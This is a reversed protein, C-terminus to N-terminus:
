RPNRGDHEPPSGPHCIAYCILALVGFFVMASLRGQILFLVLGLFAVTDGIVFLLMFRRFRPNDFLSEEEEDSTDPAKVAWRTKLVFLFPMAAIALSALIGFLIRYGGDSMPWFGGVERTAFVWRKIAVCIILYVLPSVLAFLWLRHVSKM